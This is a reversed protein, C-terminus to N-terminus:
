PADVVSLTPFPYRPPSAGGSRAQTGAHVLADYKLKVVDYCECATQGLAAPNVIELRGRKYDILGSQQFKHAILTVSTRRVSMMEAMSEQTLHFADSGALDRARLLWRALRSEINHTANCAAIQQVQVFLADEHRILLGRLIPCKDLIRALATTKCCQCTGGLQVVARATSPTGNLAGGAGVVGDHGTM